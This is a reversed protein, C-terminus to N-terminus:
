RVKICALRRPHEDHEDLLCATGREAKFSQLNAIKQEPELHSCYFRELMKLSTGANKALTLLDLGDGHLVRLMLATHRLSYLTRKRGFTDYTMGAQELLGAFWDAMREKATARNPYHSMFVHRDPDVGWRKLIRAYARVAGPMTVAIRQRTKGRVVTIRLHPHEGDVVEIHKQKLDAWESPRLFSNVMFIIFDRLEQWRWLQERDGARAL